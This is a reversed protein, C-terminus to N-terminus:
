KNHNIFPFLFPWGLALIMPSIIAAFIQTFKRNTMGAIANFYTKKKDLFIILMTIVYIFGAIGLYALSFYYLFEYIFRSNM